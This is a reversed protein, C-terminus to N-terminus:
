IWSWYVVTNDEICLQKVADHPIGTVFPRECTQANDLCTTDIHCGRDNLKSTLYKGYKNVLVYKKM